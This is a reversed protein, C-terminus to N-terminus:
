TRTLTRWRRQVVWTLALWPTSAAVLALLWGAWTSTHFFAGPLLFLVGMCLVLAAPGHVDTRFRRVSHIRDRRSMAFVGATFICLFFTLAWIWILALGSSFFGNDNHRVGLTPRGPAYMVAVTDGKVPKGVTTAGHVTVTRAGDDFPLTVMVDAAYEDVDNINVGTPDPEDLVKEIPIEYAGGGAAYVESVWRGQEGDPGVAQVLAAGSALPIALGLLIPLTRSPRRERQRAKDLVVADTRPSRVSATIWMLVCLFTCSILALRLDRVDADPPLPLVGVILTAYCAVMLLM